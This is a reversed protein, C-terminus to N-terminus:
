DVGGEVVDVELVSIEERAKWFDILRKEEGDLSLAAIADRGGAGPLKAVFAGNSTSEEILGTLDDDEISVQSLVGLEKTLLRGKNFAERFANLGEDGENKNLARLAQVARENERNIGDILTRYRDPDREKFKSVSGLAVTTATGKGLFNAFTMAFVEPLGFREIKYDWDREVLNLLDTNQYTAPFEKVIAPSYRTYLITGHTAAAIDFGSGVKGTAISHAVQALKHLADNESADLGYAKLVASIGAVTVAASSGLGSKAVKGETVSYSFASDNETRIQMGELRAGKGAAYRSAVEVSTKLLALGEPVEMSIAGTQLDVTGSANSNLQPAEIVIRDGGVSKVSAHVYANVATVFSINPRELVSYGGLWLIKGPAKATTEFGMIGRIM